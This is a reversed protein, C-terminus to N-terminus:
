DPASIRFFLACASTADGRREGLDEIRVVETGGPLALTLVDGLKVFAGPSTERRGNVRVHGSRVLDACTERSRQFRAFWIWKDLRQRAPAVEAEPRGRGM